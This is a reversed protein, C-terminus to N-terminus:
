VRGAPHTQEGAAEASQEGALQLLVNVAFARKAADEPDQLHEGDEPMSGQTGPQTRAGRRADISGKLLGQHTTITAATRSADALM